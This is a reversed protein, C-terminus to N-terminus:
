SPVVLALAGPAAIACRVKQEAVAFLATGVAAAPSLM